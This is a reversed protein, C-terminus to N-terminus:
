FVANKQLKRFWFLDPKLMAAINQLGIQGRRNLITEEVYKCVSNAVISTSQM